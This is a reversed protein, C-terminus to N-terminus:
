FSFSEARLRRDLEEMLADEAKEDAAQYTVSFRLYAGANDWPVTCISSQKILYQSAEEANEFRQGSATAVPAPSYLFYTGGPMEAQFGVGQLVAVLKKLRREYKGRVRAPISDNELATVAAKQIAIFQGSDTNDKIDAFAQVITPNGAVFGIRWGIM